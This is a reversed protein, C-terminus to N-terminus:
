SAPGGKSPLPCANSVTAVLVCGGDAAAAFADALAAFVADSPGAMLSSMPGVDVDLGRARVAALAADIADGLSAVGLPYLSFQCTVEEM